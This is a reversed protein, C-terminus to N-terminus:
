AIATSFQEPPLIWQGVSWGSKRHFEESYRDM